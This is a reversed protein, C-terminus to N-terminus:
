EYGTGLSIAWTIGSENVSLAIMTVAIAWHAAL